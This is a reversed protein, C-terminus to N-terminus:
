ERRQGATLGVGEKKLTTGGHYTSSGRFPSIIKSPRARWRPVQESYVALCRVRFLTQDHGCADAAGMAAGDVTALPVALRPCAQRLSGRAALKEPVAVTGAISAATGALGARDQSDAIKRDIAARENEYTTGKVSSRIKAAAM